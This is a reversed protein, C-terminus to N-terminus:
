CEATIHRYGNVAIFSYSLFKLALFIFPVFHYTLIYCFCFFSVIFGDKFALPLFIYMIHTSQFINCFTWSCPSPPYLSSSTTSSLRTIRDSRRGPKHLSETPCFRKLVWTLSKLFLFRVIFNFVNVLHVYRASNGIEYDLNDLVYVNIM